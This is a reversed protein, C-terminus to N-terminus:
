HVGNEVKVRELDKNDRKWTKTVQVRVRVATTVPSRRRINTQVDQAMDGVLKRKNKQAKRLGLTTVQLFKHTYFRVSDIKLKGHAQQSATHVTKASLSSGCEIVTNSTWKHTNQGGLCVGQMM